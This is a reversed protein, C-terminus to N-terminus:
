FRFRISNKISYYLKDIPVVPLADYFIDFSFLFSIHKSIEFSIMGNTSIRPYQIYYDPRAQLYAIIQLKVIKFLKQTLSLYANMKIFNTNIPTNNIILSNDTVGDYNWREFEYMCGIGLHLHGKNYTTIEFRLNGGVLGRNEMGRIGDLQYQTFFEPHIWFDKFFRTRFHIYGSNQLEQGANSIFNFNGSLTYLNRKKFYSFDANIGLSLILNIQQRLNFNLDVLASFRHNTDVKTGYADANLIQAHLNICCFSLFVIISYKM